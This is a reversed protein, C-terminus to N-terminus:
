CGHSHRRDHEDRVIRVAFVKDNAAPGVLPLWPAVCALEAITLDDLELRHRAFWHEVDADSPEAYGSITTAGAFNRSISAM